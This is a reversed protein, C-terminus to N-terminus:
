SLAGPDNLSFGAPFFALFFFVGDANFHEVFLRLRKRSFFAASCVVKGLLGALSPLLTTRFSCSNIVTDELSLQLLHCIM